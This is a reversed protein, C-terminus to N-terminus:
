PRPQVRFGAADQELDVNMVVAGQLVWSVQVTARAPLRALPGRLTPDASKLLRVKSGPLDSMERGRVVLGGGPAVLAVVLKDAARPERLLRLIDALTDTPFKAGLRQSELAFLDAESAAVLRYRGTPLFSPLDLAVTVSREEGHRPKLRVRCVLPASAAVARRPADLGAILASAVPRTLTLEARVEELVLPRDPNNLLMGLPATWAAALGMAGGPGLATGELELPRTELGADGRWRTRLRYSITQRSADDGKVLLSNYLCWFVLGPTLAQDDAVQFAYTGSEGDANVAVTVPIMRPAQGLKGTMGARQDHYVTGVVSGIGAMKFSMQRSPLVTLVRATALPWRVPGRQLFPHGMMFVDDGEVWTTTGVVGLLADGMVLPIACAAGPVLRRDPSPEDRGAAAAAQEGPLVRFWGAPLGQGEDAAALEPVMDLLIRDADPWGRPGSATGSPPAWGLLSALRRGSEPASLDRPDPLPHDAAVAVVEDTPLSMMEGAPTVGALPRLSGGWGFALAGALRGSLFIPSGSMGQAIGSTELGHGGVDVLIMNGAVRSRKQVGVVKVTFTDIRGGEFVTLGYGTMGPEIEAVPIVGAGAPGALLLALLWIGVRQARRGTGSRSPSDLSGSWVSQNFM